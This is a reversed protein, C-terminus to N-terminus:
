RIRTAPNPRRAGLARTRRGAATEATGAALEARTTRYEDPDVIRWHAQGVAFVPRAPLPVGGIHPTEPVHAPRGLDKGELVVRAESILYMRQPMLTGVHGSPMRGSLQVDGMGLVCRAMWNRLAVLTTPRWTWLPLRAGIANVVDLLRTSRMSMSWALAPEDVLV